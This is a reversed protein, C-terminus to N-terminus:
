LSFNFLYILLYFLYTFLIFFFYFLVDAPSNPIKLNMCQTIELPKLVSDEPYIYIIYLVYNLTLIIHLFFHFLLFSFFFSFGEDEKM